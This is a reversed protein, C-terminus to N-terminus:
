INQQNLLSWQKTMQLDGKKPKYNIPHPLHQKTKNANWSKELPIPHIM